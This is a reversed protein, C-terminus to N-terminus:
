GYGRACISELGRVHTLPTFPHVPFRSEIMSTFLTRLAITGETCVTHWVGAPVAVSDMQSVELHGTGMPCGGEGWVDAWM